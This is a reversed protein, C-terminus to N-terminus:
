NARLILKQPCHGELHPGRNTFWVLGFNRLFQLKGINAEPSIRLASQRRELRPYAFWDRDQKVPLSGVRSLSRTRDPRSCEMTACPSTRIHLPPPASSCSASSRISVM